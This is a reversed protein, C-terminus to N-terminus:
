IGSCPPPLKDNNFIMLPNGSFIVVFPIGSRQISVPLIFHDLIILDPKGKKLAKEIQPEFQVARQYMDELIASNTMFKLKDLSSAGSFMGNELMEQAAKKIPNELPENEVKSSENTQPKPKPKDVM